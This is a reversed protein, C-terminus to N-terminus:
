WYWLSNQDAIDASTFVAISEIIIYTWSNHISHSITIIIYQIDHVKIHINIYRFKKIRALQSCSYSNNSNSSYIFECIAVDHMALNGVSGRLSISDPNLSTICNNNNHCLFQYGFSSQLLLIVAIYM